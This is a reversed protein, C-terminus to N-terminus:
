SYGIVALFPALVCGLKGVRYNEHIFDRTIIVQAVVSEKEYRNMLETIINLLQQATVAPEHPSSSQKRIDKM